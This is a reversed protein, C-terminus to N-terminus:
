NTTTQKLALMASKRRAHIALPSEPQASAFKDYAARAEENRGLAELSAALYFRADGYIDGVQDIRGALALELQRAADEYEGIRYQSVGLYYRMQAARPGEQEYALARRLETVAKGHDRTRFADLGALFGADVVQGRAASEGATFLAREVPTLKAQQIEGFHAIAETRRDQRLLDYFALADKAAQDRATIEALLEAAHDRHEDRDRLARDRADLLEGSRTQYLVLFGGGLLVTFLLYAIFSNLNVGRERRRAAVVLQGVSEALAAVAAHTRRVIAGQEDVRLRLREIEAPLEQLEADTVAGMIAIQAAAELSNTGM